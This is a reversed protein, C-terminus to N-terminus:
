VSSETLEKMAFLSVKMIVKIHKMYINLGNTFKNQGMRIDFYGLTALNIRNIFTIGHLDRAFTPVKISCNTPIPIICAFFVKLRYLGWRGAFIRVRYTELM